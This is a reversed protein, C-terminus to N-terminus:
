VLYHSCNQCFHQNTEIISNCYKCTSTQTPTAFWKSLLSQSDADGRKKELIKGAFLSVEILSLLALFLYLDGIPTAGPSILMAAIALGAWIYRRQKTISKTHLIGFKVLLVFFAPITFLFGSIIITFFITSYFDMIPFIEIANVATYFPLFGQIFSPALFFFGFFAGLVFLISVITVFPFIARKEHQYLAPDIFKYAEYAFIPLTIGIAFVVAAYAYLTIPDSMSNAFLQTGQPLFMNGIYVLLVSMLPKYNNTTAFFDSNGPLVLMVFLSVVFVALVIKMRKIFETIHGWFGEFFNQTDSM